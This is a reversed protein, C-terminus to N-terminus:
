KYFRAEQLNNRIQYKIIGDQEGHKSFIRDLSAPIVNSVLNKETYLELISPEVNLKTVYCEIM